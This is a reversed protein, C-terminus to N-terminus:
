KLEDPINVDYKKKEELKKYLDKDRYLIQKINFKIKGYGRSGSGGLFDDQVLLLATFIEDLIDKEKDGEFINVVLQMNFLATAPVREMQRPNAESTARNITVETKVETYPMETALKSLQEASKDTMPADRVILRGQEEIGSEAPVGFIVGIKYGASDKDENNPPVYIMKKDEPYNPELGNSKEKLARMKGKLSSGPIYPKSTVPDRLVVNGVGGVSLTQDSGGIHLGSRCEINGEIFIKKTLHIKGM